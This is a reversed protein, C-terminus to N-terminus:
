TKERMQQLAFSLYVNLEPNKRCSEIIDSFMKTSKIFDKKWQYVHALRIKQQTEYKESKVVKGLYM